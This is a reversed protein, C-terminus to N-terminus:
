LLPPARPDPQLAFRCSVPSELAPLLFVRGCSFWVTLVACLGLLVPTHVIQCFPCSEHDHEHEDGLALFILEHLAAATFLVVLLVVIARFLVGKWRTSVIHRTRIINAQVFKHM